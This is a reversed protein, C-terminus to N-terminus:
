VAATPVAIQRPLPAQAPDAPYLRMSAVDCHNLVAGLFFTDMASTRSLAESLLLRTTKGWRTVLVYGDVIDSMRLAMNGAELPPLNVVVVDYRARLDSLLSSTNSHSPAGLSTTPSQGIFRLGTEEDTLAADFLVSTRNALEQVGVQAVPALIETLWPNATNWDLLVTRLGEAAMAFAYNAALSSSGEDGTASVFGIVRIDRGRAAHRTAVVRIAHVAETIQAAPHLMAQRFPAPVLMGGRLATERSKSRWRRTLAFMLTKTHPILGLCDMGSAIRFQAVTRVTGDLADRIVAILIGFAVGLALAVSLVIAARPQSRELPAMAVAAVRADSIPYSQNQMAQTFRQLFTEYINRYAQASSQLSRLESREINTQATAKVQENLRAQIENLNAQAVEFDGRYTETMRALETQIGRQLEAVEARQLIVAAHNPGQRATLEANRRVADVYQQRLRTMVSNPATDTIVGQTIGNITNASARQLRAQTEALRSRANAVQVNLEGLQQEDMQGAGAGTGVDVISNRAKYEQVSRDANVAQGRLDGIREKLWEGARRTTESIAVLQQAMYAETVANAIQASLARDPTRARVEVVSTAGIRWVEIVRGLSAGALAHAKAAPNLELTVYGEPLHQRIADMIQGIAGVETPAFTPNRDLNLAQVVGRLTAPSRMLEVQSEIYASESQWDGSAQADGTPHARRADITMTAVATYQTTATGLYLVGLGLGLAGCGVATWARRRLFGVTVLMWQFPMTQNAPPPPPGSYPPNVNLFNLM